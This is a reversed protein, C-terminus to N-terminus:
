KNMLYISIFVALTFYGSIWPIEKKWMAYSDNKVCSFTDKIGNKMNLYGTKNEKYKKVYLPVDIVMMFIVYILALISALLFIKNKSSLLVCCIFIICGIITWGIEEIIHYKNNTTIVAYWCFINSIIALILIFPAITNIISNYQQSILVLYIQLGLSIEAITAALRGYFIYSQKKDILCIREVDLRPYFARFATGLTFLLGCISITTIPISFFIKLAVLINIISIIRLFYLWKTINSDM